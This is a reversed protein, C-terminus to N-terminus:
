AAGEVPIQNLARMGSQCFCRLADGEPLVQLLVRLAVLMGAGFQVRWGSLLCCGAGAGQLPVGAAGAHGSWVACVARVAAHVAAVTHWSWLTGHIAHNGVNSDNQPYTQTLLWAHLIHPVSM